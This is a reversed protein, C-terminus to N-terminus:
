FLSQQEHELEIPPPANKIEQMRAMLPVGCGEISLGFGYVGPWMHKLRKWTPMFGRTRALDILERRIMGKKCDRVFRAGPTPMMHPPFTDPLGTAEVGDVFVIKMAPNGASSVDEVRAIGPLGDISIIPVAATTIASM